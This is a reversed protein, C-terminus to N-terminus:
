WLLQNRIVIEETINNGFINIKEVLLKDTELIIFKLDLKSEILNEEVSANITEFQEQLVIQDIKDM